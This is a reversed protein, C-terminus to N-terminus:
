ASSIMVLSFANMAAPPRQITCTGVTRTSQHDNTGVWRSLELAILCLYLSRDAPHKLTVPVDKPRLDLRQLLLEGAINAGAVRNTDGVPCISKLERQSRQLDPRPILYNCHRVGRNGCYGGNLRRPCHWCQDVDIRTKVCQIWLLKGFHEAWSCAGHDGNVEISLRSIKIGNSRKALLMLKGQNFVGRLRM